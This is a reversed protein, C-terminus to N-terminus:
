KNTKYIDLMPLGTGAFVIDNDQVERSCAIAMLEPLAFEGSKAPEDPIKELVDLLAEISKSSM